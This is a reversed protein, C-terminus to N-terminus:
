VVLSVNTYRVISGDADMADLEPSVSCVFQIESKSTSQEVSVPRSPRDNLESWERRLPRADDCTASSLRRALALVSSARRRVVEGIRLCQRASPRTRWRARLMEVISRATGQM